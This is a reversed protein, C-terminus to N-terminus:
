QAWRVDMQFDAARPGLANVTIYDPVNPALTRTFWGTQNLVQGGKDFFTVRYDVHLEKDTAARIPVTVYLINGADDRQATPTRVATRGKLDKSAFHIQQSEYPDLRGEIPPKVCGVVLLSLAISSAILRNM